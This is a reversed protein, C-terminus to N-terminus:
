LLYELKYQEENELKYTTGQAKMLVVTADIVHLNRTKDNYALIIINLHRHRRYWPLQTKKFSIVGRRAYKVEVFTAKDKNDIVILDPMGPEVTNEIAIVEKYRKKDDNIISMYKKKFAPEDVFTGIEEIVSYFVKRNM